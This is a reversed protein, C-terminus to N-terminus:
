REVRVKVIRVESAFSPFKEKIQKMATQAEAHTRYMGVRVRWYPSDYVVQAPVGGMNQSVLRKRYEANAKATQRNNDSFVQISYRINPNEAPGESSPRWSSRTDAGPKLRQSLEEPEVILIAENAQMISQVIGAATDTRATYDQAKATTLGCLWM